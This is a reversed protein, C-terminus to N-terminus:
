ILDHPKCNLIKAIDHLEDLSVLCVNKLIRNWTNYTMGISKLAKTLSEDKNYGVTIFRPHNKTVYELIKHPHRPVYRQGRPKPIQKEQRNNRMFLSSRITM